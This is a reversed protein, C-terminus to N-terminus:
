KAVPIRVLLPEGFGDVKVFYIGSPLSGFEIPISVVGGVVRGISQKYLEVGLSNYVRYTVAAAEPASLHIIASAKGITAVSIIKAKDSTSQEVGATTIVKALLYVPIRFQPADSVIVISDNFTGPIDGATFRVELNSIENEELSYTQQGTALYHDSLTPFITNIHLTRETDTVNKISITLPPTQLSGITLQGFNLTRPSVSIQPLLEDSSHIDAILQIYIINDPAPADSQVTVTDIYKGLAINPDASCQITCTRSQGSDLQFNGLGVTVRFPLPGNIVKGNLKIPQNTINKITFQQPVSQGSYVKGFNLVLPSVLIRAATDPVFGTGSLPIVIRDNPADANTTVIISDSVAGSTYPTFSVTVVGQETPLLSFGGAGSDILFPSQAGSVSGELAIITDSSNYITFSLKKSTGIAITGFDLKHPAITVSPASTLFQDSFFTPKSFGISGFLSYVVIAICTAFLTVNKKM